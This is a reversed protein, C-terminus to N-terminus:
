CTAAFVQGCKANRDRHPLVDGGGPGEGAVGTTYLAKAAGPHGLGECGCGHIENSSEQSAGRSRAPKRRGSLQAGGSRQGGHAGIMEKMAGKQDYDLAHSTDTVPEDRGPNGCVWQRLGIKKLIDKM